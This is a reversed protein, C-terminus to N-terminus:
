WGKQSPSTLVRLNQVFAGEAMEPERVKLQVFQARPQATGFLHQPEPQGDVWAGLKKRHEMQPGARLVHCV